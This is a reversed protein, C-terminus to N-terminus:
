SYLKDDDGVYLDVSGYTHALTTLEEGVKGLGLDWFGAGHRNRTLWFNYGATSAPLDARSLPDKALMIFDDCDLKMEKLTGADIDAQSYDEDLPTGEEDTSSRLACVVYAKFFEELYENSGPVPADLDVQFYQGLDPEANDRVIFVHCEKGTQLYNMALEAAKRPTDADLDIEWKIRYEPM